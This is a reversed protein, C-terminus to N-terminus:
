AKVQKVTGRVVLETSLTRETFPMAPNYLRELLMRMCSQGIEEKYVRVTTLPPDMLMAEERDDFGVLSIDDPVRLGRRRFARYLAFAMEDNAAMVATPRRRRALLRAAAWEGYETSGEPRSETLTMPRVDREAVAAFYAELRVKVWPFQADGVFVVHRHGQDLVYRTAALEGDFGDYSVQDFTRQGNVGIVNNGFAVFPIQMRQIGRLFNPYITGALILGDIMGKEDLIPPLLIREPDTGAEYHVAAFVVHQRVGLAFNAVGQLIRAHFTHPFDRNSLLFCVIESHRKQMRRAQANPRFGLRRIAATVREFTPRRVNRGGNLVRSVTGIGVGAARAVDRITIAGVDGKM